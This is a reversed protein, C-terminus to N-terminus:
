DLPGELNHFRHVVWSPPLKKIFAVHDSPGQRIREPAKRNSLFDHLARSCGDWAYYDDILILGDPLVFDWFKRLCEMTSDYWDADLRLVAIPPPTFTPFTQEFFGKFVHIRSEPCGTQRVTRRFDDVSATCNDHYFPSATDAQWALAASGDIAKAPPLGEFSDFFYYHRRFGGIEILAASMGGKWCGCEIIAGDRVNPNRLQRAAIEVNAIFDDRRVMTSSQYKRFLRMPERLRARRQLLSRISYPFIPM